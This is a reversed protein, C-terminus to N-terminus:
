CEPGYGPHTTNPPTLNIVVPSEFVEEGRGSVGNRTLVCISRPDISVRLLGAEKADFVAFRLTFLEDRVQRAERWELPDPEDAM